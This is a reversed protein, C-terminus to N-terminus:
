ATELRTSLGAQGTQKGAESKVRLVMFDMRAIARAARIATKARKRCPQESSAASVVGTEFSVVVAMASELAVVVIAVVMIVVVSSSAFAVVIVVVASSFAVLLLRKSSQLAATLYQCDSRVFALDQTQRALLCTRVVFSQSRYLLICGM